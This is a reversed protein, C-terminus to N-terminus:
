RKRPGRRRQNPRKRHSPNRRPMLESDYDPEDSENRSPLEDIYRARKDEVSSFSNCRPCCSLTDAVEDLYIYGCFVCRWLFQKEIQRQSHRVSVETYAWIFFLMLLLVFSYLALATTLSIQIM